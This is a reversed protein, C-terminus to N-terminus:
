IGKLREWIKQLLEAISAEPATRYKKVVVGPNSRRELKYTFPYRELNADFDLKGFNMVHLLLGDESRRVSYYNDAFWKLRDVEYTKAVEGLLKEHRPIFQLQVTPDSDFLSYFGVHYGQDTEAIGYWLVSNLPTPCTMFRTTEINQDVFSDAFVQEVNHKNALTLALYSTSLLLGIFNMRRRWISTKKLCLCTAVCILFPATYLPDIIFINNWAVRTDSFPAFIQTGYNTCCDLLIHTLFVLFFFASWRWYDIQEPHNRYWRVFLSSLVPTAVAVGLLSHSLARHHVIFGVPDLFPAFAVDLDPLTGFAAGWFIARNGLQRGLVAEGVAAGLAIQTVSDM